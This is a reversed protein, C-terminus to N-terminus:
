LILTKFASIDSNLLPKLKTIHYSEIIHLDTPQDTQSIISFNKPDIHHNHKLSHERINSHNPNTIPFHAHPSIGIHEDICVSLQRTTAGVYIVSCGNCLYKYVVSSCLLNSLKEKHNTYSSIKSSPNFVLSIFLQPFTHTLLDQLEKNLKISYQDYYPFKFYLRHKPALIPHPKLNFVKSLFSNITQHIIHSPFLNM